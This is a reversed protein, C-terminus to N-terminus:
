KKEPRGCEPCGANPNLNTSTDPLARHCRRCLLGRKKLWERVAEASLTEDPDTPEIGFLNRIHCNENAEAQYNQRWYDRAEGLRKCVECPEKVFRRVTM